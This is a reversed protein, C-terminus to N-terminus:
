KDERITITIDNKIEDGGTQLIYKLRIVGNQADAEVTETLVSMCISGYQTRYEFESLKGPIYNVESTADGTRKISVRGKEARIMVSADATKYTIYSVGNKQRYTGRGSETVRDRMDGASQVNKVTIIYKETAKM